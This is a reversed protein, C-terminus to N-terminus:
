LFINYNGQSGTSKFAHSVRIEVLLEQRMQFLDITFFLRGLQELTKDLQDGQMQSAALIALGVVGQPIFLGTDEDSITVADLIGTRIGQWGELLEQVLAQPTDEAQHM